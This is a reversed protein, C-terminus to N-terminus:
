PSGGKTIGPKGCHAALSCWECAKSPKPEFKGAKIAAIVESIKGLALRAASGDSTDQMWEEGTSLLVLGARAPMEGLLRNAAYAYMGVQLEYRERTEARGTKYDLITWGDAGRYIVDMRGALVKGDIALEFPTEKLIRDSARLDRRWHSAAFRELLPLAQVRLPEDAEAVLAQIQPEVDQSFDLSALLRHVLHGLDAAAVEVEEAEEPPEASEEPMGIIHMLRYRAPCELYDLIRSVSFRSIAHSVPPEISLCRAVVNKATALAEPDAVASEIPRGEQLEAAFREALTPSDSLPSVKTPEPPSCGFMVRSRGAILEGEPSGPGLELAKELWGLWSVTERYTSRFDGRLDSSGALILHEGARTMALHLLRKAESVARDQVREFIERHSLPTELVGTLPNRVQVAMGWDRDLVFPGHRPHLRRSMDAVFVVPSRIDRARRITTIRVVDEEAVLEMQHAALREMERVHAIFDSLGRAQLEGAIERLRRINAYRRKGDKMALLQLAFGSRELAFDLVDMLGGRSRIDLLEDILGRVTRLRSRDAEGLDPIDDLRNLAHRLRGSGGNLPSAQDGRLRTLADESVGAFPSRLVAAMVTDDLPNDAVQLLCLVDQVECAPSFAREGIVRVGIGHEELIREYVDVDAMSRLLVVIDSFRIPQGARGEKTHFLPSDGACGAIELIRHAIARAENLRGYDAYVEEPSAKYLKPVLIIEVDPESKAGFRGTCKLGAYDADSDEGWVKGFFWNIFDGIGRRGSFSEQLAISLARRPGAQGGGITFVNHERSVADLIQRDFRGADQSEVLMVFKFKDRYRRAIETPQGDSGRLLDETKSLLDDYDLLCLRAKASAYRASFDAALDLLLNACRFSERDLCAALFDGLANGTAEIPQRIERSARPAMFGTCCKGVRRFDKWDFPTGDQASALRGASELTGALGPATRNIVEELWYDPTEALAALESYCREFTELFPAPDNVPPMLESPECGRSRTQRHISFVADRVIDAELGQLVAPDNRGAEVAEALARSATVRQRADTLVSFRPDIGAEFANEHLVRSCFGHITMIHASEVAQNGLRRVIGDRIERAARETPVLVLIEDASARGQEVIRCFRQVLIDTRGAGCSVSVSRNLAAIAKKEDKALIPM